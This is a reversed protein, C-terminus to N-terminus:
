SYTATYTMPHNRRTKFHSHQTQECVRRPGPGRWWPRCTCSSPNGVRPVSRDTSHLPRLAASTQVLSARFIPPAEQRAGPVSDRLLSSKMTDAYPASIAEKPNGNRPTPTTGGPFARLSTHRFVALGPVWKKELYSSCVPNLNGM